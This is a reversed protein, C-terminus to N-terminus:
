EMTIVPTPPVPTTVTPAIRPMAACRSDFPAPMMSMDPRAWFPPGTATCTRMARCGSSMLAIRADEAPASRTTPPSRTTAPDPLTSLTTRPPRVLTTALGCSVIVASKVRAGSRESGAAASRRENSSRAPAAAHLKMSACFYAAASSPSLAIALMRSM